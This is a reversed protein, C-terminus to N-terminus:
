ELWSKVVAEVTEDKQDKVKEKADTAEKIALLYTKVEELKGQVTDIKNAQEKSLKEISDGVFGLAKSSENAMDVLQNILQQAKANTDSGEKAISLALDQVKALLDELGGMRQTISRGGTDGLHKELNEVTQLINLTTAEINSALEFTASMRGGLLAVDGWNVGAVSM